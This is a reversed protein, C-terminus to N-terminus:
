LIGQPMTMPRFYKTSNKGQLQVIDLWYQFILRMYIDPYFLFTEVLFLIWMVHNKRVPDTLESIVLDMLDNVTTNDKYVGLWAQFNTLTVCFNFFLTWAHLKWTFCLYCSPDASPERLSGLAHRVPRTIVLDQSQYFFFSTFKNIIALWLMGMSSM